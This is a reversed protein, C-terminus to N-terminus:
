LYCLMLAYLVISHSITCCNKFNLAVGLYTNWFYKTGNNEKDLCHIKYIKISRNIRNKTKLSLCLITYACVFGIKYIIKSIASFNNMKHCLIFTSSDAKTSKWNNVVTVLLWQNELLTICKKCFFFIHSCCVISLTHFEHSCGRYLRKLWNM